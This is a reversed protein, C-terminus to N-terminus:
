NMSQMIRLIALTNVISILYSIAHYSNLLPRDSDKLNFPSNLNIHICFLITFNEKTKTVRQHEILM